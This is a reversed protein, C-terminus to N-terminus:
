CGGHVTFGNDACNTPIYISTVKDPNRVCLRQWTGYNLL